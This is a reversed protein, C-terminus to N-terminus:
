LVIYLPIQIEYNASNSKHKKEVRLIKTVEETPLTM